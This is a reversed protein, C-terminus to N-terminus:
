LHRKVSIAYRLYRQITAFLDQRRLFYGLEAVMCWDYSSTLPTARAHRGCVINERNVLCRQIFVIAVVLPLDTMRIPNRAAGTLFTPFVDSRTIISMAPSSVVQVGERDLRSEGSPDIMTWRGRTLQTGCNTIMPFDGTNHQGIQWLLFEAALAQASRTFCLQNPERSSRM